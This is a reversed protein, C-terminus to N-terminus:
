ASKKLDKRWGENEYTGDFKNSKIRNDPKTLYQLNWPVHLGCVDKHNIPIIHDVQSEDPCQIYISVLTEEGVGALRAKRVKAKRADNYSNNIERNETKWQANKAHAREIYNGDRNCKPNIFNPDGHRKTRRDHMACMKNVWIPKICGEITCPKGKSIKREFLPSGNRRNKDYHMKCFDKSYYANNCKDITCRM